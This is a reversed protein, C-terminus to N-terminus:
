NITPTVLDFITTGTFIGTALLAANASTYGVSRFVTPGYDALPTLITFGLQYALLPLDM